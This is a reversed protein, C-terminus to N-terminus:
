KEIEKIFDPLVALLEKLQELNIDLRGHAPMQTRTDWISVDKDGEYKQMRIKNGYYEIIEAPKTRQVKRKKFM